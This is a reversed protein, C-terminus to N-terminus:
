PVGFAPTPEVPETLVPPVGIAGPGAWGPWPRPLWPVAVVGVPVPPVVPEDTGPGFRGPPEVARPVPEDVGESLPMPVGSMMFPMGFLPVGFLPVGDRQAPVYSRATREAQFMEPSPRHVRM